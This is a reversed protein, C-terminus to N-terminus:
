ADLANEIFLHSQVRNQQSLLTNLIHQKIAHLSFSLLAPHSYNPEKLLWLIDETRFTKSFLEYIMEKLNINGYCIVM